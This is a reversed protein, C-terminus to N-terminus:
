APQISFASQQSSELAALETIIAVSHITGIRDAGSDLMANAAAVTCIEGAVEVGADDGVVGRMLALDNETAAGQFGTATKVFDVDAAVCLQCALIQEELTLLPMELIVKISAENNHTLAALSEIESQVLRREGSKLAGVNIVMEIEQAGVRIAEQAEFRKVSTHSAGLPFGIVSAVKVGTGHVVSAALGIWCPNVCVAAFGFSIAEESLQIIRDRVVEPKFLSHNITSALQRRNRAIKPLGCTVQSMAVPM